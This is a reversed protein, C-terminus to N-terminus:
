DPIDANFAPRQPLQFVHVGIVEHESESSYWVLVLEPRDDENVEAVSAICPTAPLPLAGQAILNRDRYVKVEVPARVHDRGVRIEELLGDGELDAHIRLKREPEDPTCSEDLRDFDASAEPMSTHRPKALLQVSPQNPLDERGIFLQGPRFLVTGQVVSADDLTVLEPANSPARPDAQAFAVSLGVTALSCFLVPRCLTM